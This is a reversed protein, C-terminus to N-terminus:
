HSGTLEGSLRGHVTASPADLGTIAVSKGREAFKATIADLAAVTSADWTHADTLDIVV